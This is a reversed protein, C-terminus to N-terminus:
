RIGKCGEGEPHTGISMESGKRDVLDNPPNNESQDYTAGEMRCNFEHHSVGEKGEIIHSTGSLM